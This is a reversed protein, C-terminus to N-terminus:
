WRNRLERLKLFVTRADPEDPLDPFAERLRAIVTPSRLRLFTNIEKEEGLTTVHPANPDHSGYAALTRAAQSGPVRFAMGECSGGRDLALVLGPRAHSGRHHTSYIFFGRRWGDVRAHVAEEHAFDPRWMLSGYGFIWLETQGAAIRADDM